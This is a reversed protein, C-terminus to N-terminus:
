SVSKAVCGVTCSQRSSVNSPERGHTSWGLEPTLPWGQAFTRMNQEPGFTCSLQGKVHSSQLLLADVALGVVLGLSAICSAVGGVSEGM